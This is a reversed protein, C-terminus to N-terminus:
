SRARLREPHELDFVTGLTATQVELEAFDNDLCAEHIAELHPVFGRVQERVQELRQEDHESMARRSLGVYQAVIGLLADIHRNVLARSHRVDNPDDEYNSAIARLLTALRGITERMDERLQSERALSELTEAAEKCKAVAAKQDALTVGAALTVEHDERKREILLNTAVYAGIAAIGSLALQALLILEIQFYVAAFAAVAVFGASLSRATTSMQLKAM